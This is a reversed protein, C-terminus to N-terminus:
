EIFLSQESIISLHNRHYVTLYYYGSSIGLFEISEGQPNVVIGDNRLIAAQYYKKTPVSIDDRLEILVWDVINDPLIIIEELGNYNWPMINFPQIKPINNNLAIDSHMENSGLYSGELFVKINIETLPVSYSALKYISPSGTKYIKITHNGVSLNESIVITKPTGLLINGDISNEGVYSYSSDDIEIRIKDGSYGSGSLLFVTNNRQDSYFTISDYLSDADDAIEDYTKNLTVKGNEHFLVMADKLFPTNDTYIKLTHDGKNLDKQISVSTGEGNLLSGNFSNITNWGYNTNDLEIKLDDDNELSGYSEADGTLFILAEGDSQTTFNYYKWLIENKGNPYTNPSDWFIISGSTNREIATGEMGFVEIFDVFMESGSSNNNWSIIPNNKDIVRNDIWLDIRMNEDPLNETAVYLQSDNVYLFTSDSRWIIHFTNWETEDVTGFLDITQRNQISDGNVGFLFWNYELNPLYSKQKMMWAVDFDYLMSNFDIHGDWFGWGRSGIHQSSCKLRIRVQTGPTYPETPNYIETNCYQSDIANLLQLHLLGNQVTPISQNGDARWYWNNSKFKFDDILLTQGISLSVFISM